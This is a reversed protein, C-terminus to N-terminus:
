SVVFFRDKGVYPCLVNSPHGTPRVFTLESSGQDYILTTSEGSMACISRPEELGCPNQIKRFIGPIGDWLINQFVKRTYFAFCYLTPRFVDIRETSVDFLLIIIKLVIEIVKAQLRKATM